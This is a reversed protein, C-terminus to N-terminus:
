GIYCGWLLLPKSCIGPIGLGLSDKMSRMFQSVKHPPKFDIKIKTKGLLQAIRGATTSCYPVFAGRRIEEQETLNRRNARSKQFTLQIELESYGNKHFVIRLFDVEEKQYQEDLIVTAQNLLTSM